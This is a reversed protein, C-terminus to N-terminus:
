PAPGPMVGARVLVIALLGSLSVSALKALILCATM